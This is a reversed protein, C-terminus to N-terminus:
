FLPETCNDKCSDDIVTICIYVIKNAILWPWKITEIINQNPLIM